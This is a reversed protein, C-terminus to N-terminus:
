RNLSPLHACVCEALQIKIKKAQRESENGERKMLGTDEEVKWKERNQEEAEETRLSLIFCNHMSVDLIPAFVMGFYKLSFSSNDPQLSYQTYLSVGRLTM